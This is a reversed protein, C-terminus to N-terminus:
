AQGNQYYTTSNSEELGHGPTLNLWRTGVREGQEHSHTIWVIAKISSGSKPLGMLTKEVQSSTESDLASTPEVTLGDTVWDGFVKGVV